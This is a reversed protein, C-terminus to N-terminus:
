YSLLMLFYKMSPCPMPNCGEFAETDVGGECDKGGFKPAPDTCTRTRLRDGFGCSKTCNSLESWQSWQGHVLCFVFILKEINDSHFEISM